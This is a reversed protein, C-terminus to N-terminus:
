LCVGWETSGILAPPNFSYCTQAGPCTGITGMACWKECMSSAGGTNICAFPGACDELASCVAGSTATGAPYSCFSYTSGPQASCHSDSGCLPKPDAPSCYNCAVGDCVLNEFSSTFVFDAASAIRPVLGVGTTIAFLVLLKM